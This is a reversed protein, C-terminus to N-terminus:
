KIKQPIGSPYGEEIQVVKSNIKTVGMKALQEQIIQHLNSNKQEILPPHAQMYISGKKRGFKVPENLVRVPTGVAVLDFLYEIDEPMMRICGASVRSGVGDRRNTGHILYTPWGLRLIHRGLPNGEGPPFADPIPVGNKAAEARVNATPRWVPDREKAVVKTMGTPTTWGERGIGVPMTIVVNDKPPYYYLRYEALNIVLGERPGPPLIFQSPIILRVDPSLPRVPDVRPNARVMEYYGIDYRIAVDSLTEGIEPRTSQVQGVLDGNEPLVFTTSWSPALVFMLFCILWMQRLLAGERRRLVSRFHAIVKQLPKTQFM